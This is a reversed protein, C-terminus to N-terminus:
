FICNINNMSRPWITIFNCNFDASCQSQQAVSRRKDAETEEVEALPNPADYFTSSGHGDGSSSSGGLSIISLPRHRPENNNFNDSSSVAISNRFRPVKNLQQLSISRDCIQDQSPTIDLCPKNGIGMSSMEELRLKRNREAQKWLLNTIEEVWANKVEASPAQLVYLDQAKCKRFWIEFKTPSEGVQATLGLDSTKISNKYQYYDHGKCEPDRRAKSFLILDEFLFVHRLAKRSKGQWVLFEEQRLLRGQEKINVDCERLADMALLDNGHRLQFCVMEEAAKLNNYYDSSTEPCEKLLQKLLLAYKGMRQVPKLLYSALDMKDGLEQQKKKFFNNGYEAMLSDSKPKNKNYLAYLYFQTEYKLFCQGVSYPMSECQELERLFYCNHFEYIKEINGFVVNRQCRLTQNINGNQLLPVYNEIIYGLSKVYDRETQIMEMMILKLTRNNSIKLAEMDATKSSLLEEFDSCSACRMLHSNVPAPKQFQEPNSGSYSPNAYSSNFHRASSEYSNRNKTMADDALGFMQQQELMQNQERVEDAVRKLEEECMKWNRDDEFRSKSNFKSSASQLSNIDKNFQANLNTMSDSSFPFSKRGRLATSKSSDGSGSAPSHGSVFEDTLSGRKTFYDSRNKKQSLSLLRERFGAAPYYSSPFSTYSGTERQLLQSGHVSNLGNLFTQSVARYPTNPKVPNWLCPKTKLNDLSENLNPREDFTMQEKAKQLTERRAQVLEVTEEYKAKATECQKLLRENNLKTALLLMEEFVADELYPHDELYADLRKMITVLANVSTTSDVKMHSVFRMTELAWEYTKDLLQYCRSTDELKERADELRDTFDDLQQKLHVSMGNEGGSIKAKPIEELLDNGREIQRMALFYFKEFENEQERIANLTEALTKHKKLTEEGKRRLWGLVQSSEEEFMKMLMCEQLKNLRKDALRALRQVVKKLQKYLMKSKEVAEEYDLNSKFKERYKELHELFTAGEQELYRLQENELVDLIQKKQQEILHNTLTSPLQASRLDQILKVLRCGTQHCSVIFPDLFEHFDIWSEHDYEFVGGFEPLLQDKSIYNLLQNDNVIPEFKIHFIPFKSTLLESKHSQRHLALVLSVTGPICEEVLALARHLISWEEVKAERGDVVALFGLCMTERKPISQFYLLLEALQVASVSHEQIASLSIYIISRSCSDRCGPMNAVGSYLVDQDLDKIASLQRVEQLPSKRALCLTESDVFGDDTSDPKPKQESDSCFEEESALPALPQLVEECKQEEAVSTAVKGLEKETQVWSDRTSRVRSRRRCGEFLEELLHAIEIRHIGNEAAVLLTNREVSEDDDDDPSSPSLLAAMEKSFERADLSRERISDTAEEKWKLAVRVPEAVFYFDGGKLIAPDPDAIHIILCGRSCLPWGQPIKKKRPRGGRNCKRQRISPVSGVYDRVTRLFLATPGLYHAEFTDQGVDQCRALAQEALQKRVPPFPRYLSGLYSETLAAIAGAKKNPRSWRSFNVHPLANRLTSKSSAIQHALENKASQCRTLTGQNVEQNEQYFKETATVGRSHRWCRKRTEDTQVGKAVKTRRKIVAYGAEPFKIKLPSAPAAM